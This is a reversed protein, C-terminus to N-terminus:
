RLADVLIRACALYFWYLLYLLLPSSLYLAMEELRPLSAAQVASAAREQQLLRLGERSYNVGEYRTSCEACIPTKTKVCVGIAPRDAHNVCMSKKIAM